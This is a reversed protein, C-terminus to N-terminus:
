FVGHGHEPHLPCVLYISIASRGELVDKEGDFLVIWCDIWVVMEKTRKRDGMEKGTIM